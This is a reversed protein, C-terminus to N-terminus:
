ACIFMSHITVLLNLYHGQSFSGPIFREIIIDPLTYRHFGSLTIVKPSHYVSLMLCIIVNDSCVRQNVSQRFASCAKSSNFFFHDCWGFSLMIQSWMLCFGSYKPPLYLNMGQWLCDLKFIDKQWNKWESKSFQRVNEMKM